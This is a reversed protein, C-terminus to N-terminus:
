ASRRTVSIRRKSSLYGEAPTALARNRGREKASYLARDAAAVVDGTDGSTKVPGSTAGASVTVKLAPRDSGRPIALDRVRACLRRAIGLAERLDTEPLIVLFEEGGYRAVLDAARLNGALCKAVGALVLDGVAHGYRDNISKFHDIDLMLVGYPRGSQRAASDIRDLHPGAYRRNYLGTLPDTLAARLGEEVNARLRDSIRKRQLLKALRLTLEAPLANGIVIDDAGLDLATAALQRQTGEAIYLIAARRTEPRARLDSLLDLASGSEGEVLVFVDVRAARGRLVDERATRVIDASSAGALAAAVSRTAAGPAEVVAVRAPTAFGSADEALGLARGTDDRLRLEREAERARILGRLRAFLLVEDIPQPLTDQAGAELAALRGAPDDRSQMLIVPLDGSPAVPRIRRCLEAGTMDPLDQAAIVLDPRTRLAEKLAQKGTEAQVVDYFASALKVQLIIRQTATGDVVLIRGSM